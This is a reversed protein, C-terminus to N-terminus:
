QTEPTLILKIPFTTWSNTWLQLGIQVVMELTGNPSTRIWMWTKEQFDLELSTWLLNFAIYTIATWPADESIGLWRIAIVRFTFIENSMLKPLWNRNCASRAKQYSAVKTQQLIKSAQERTQGRFLMAAPLEPPLHTLQDRMLAVLPSIVLTLGEQLLAPLQYCLSKGAGTLLSKFGIPGASVRITNRANYALIALASALWGLLIQEACLWSPYQTVITHSKVIRCGPQCAHNDLLRM